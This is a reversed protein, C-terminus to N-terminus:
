AAPSARIEPVVLRLKSRMVSKVMPVSLRSPALATEAELRSLSPDTPVLKLDVVIALKSVGVFKVAL